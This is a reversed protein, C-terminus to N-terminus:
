WTNAKAIRMPMIARNKPVPQAVVDDCQEREERRDRDADPAPRSRMKRSRCRCRRSRRTPEARSSASLAYLCRIDVCPRPTLWPALGRASSVLAAASLRSAARLRRVRHSKRPSHGSIRARRDAPAHALDNRLRRGSGPNSGHARDRAGDPRNKRECNVYEHLERREFAVADPATVAWNLYREVRIAVSDTQFMSVMSTATATASNNTPNDLMELSAREAGLRNRRCRCRAPDSSHGHSRHLRRREHGPPRRHVDRVPHRFASRGQGHSRYVHSRLSLARICCSSSLTARYRASRSRASRSGVATVSARTSCRFCLTSATLVCICRSLCIPSCNASAGSPCTDNVSGSAREIAVLPRPVPM